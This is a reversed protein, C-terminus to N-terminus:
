QSCTKRNSSTNPCGICCQLSYYKNPLKRGGLGKKKNGNRDFIDAKQYGKATTAPGIKGCFSFTEGNKLRVKMIMKKCEEGEPKWRFDIESINSLGYTEDLFKHFHKESPANNCLLDVTYLSSYDKGLFSYLGAIQCPLGSFLVKIGKELETKTQKYIDGMFCQVYKSKFLRPLDKENDVMIHVCRWNEDWAAGTVKGGQALFHKALIQFGGATASKVSDKSYNNFVYLPPKKDNNNRNTKNLPCIHECKGCHTCKTEELFPKYFGNEDYELSLAGAPCANVCAGCGTCNKTDILIENM